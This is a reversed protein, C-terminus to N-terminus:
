MSEIEELMKKMEQEDYGSSACSTAMYAPTLVPSVDYLKDIKYIHRVLKDDKVEWDDGGQPVTFAFSSKDIVGNNVLELLDNGMTTNPADFTYKLGKSDVKLSLTGVGNKSRALVRDDDHNFLAFIDSNNITDQTIAQPHIIEIFGMDESESNFVAAYGEISRKM